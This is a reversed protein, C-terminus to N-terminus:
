KIQIGPYWREAIEWYYLFLDKCWKCFRKDTGFLGRYDLVGNHRRLVVTAEGENIVLVVPVREMYKCRGSLVSSDSANATAKALEKQMLIKFNLGKSIKEGTPGVHSSDVQEAITWLYEEAEFVMKRVRNFGSVAERCFEANSLEGLRNIFEYPLSFVDYELFYDVNNFVFEMSSMLQIQLRAYPTLTNKGNPQKQVLQAETLRQLQRCTETDTLNLNRALEQMKLQKLKLEQLIGLRSESALEFFLKDVGEKSGM